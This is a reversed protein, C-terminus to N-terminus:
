GMLKQRADQLFAHYEPSTKYDPFTWPWGRFTGGKENHLTVEAYIGDRLYVRHSFDKASALVLKAPTIYGPDLNIPRPVPATAAAALERELENTRIKIDPLCAPDILEEFAFFKRLLNPGMQKEYYATFDFTILPSEVDVPGYLGCLAHKAQQLLSADASLAGVILKVDDPKRFEAM